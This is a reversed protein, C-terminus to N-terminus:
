KNLEENGCVKAARRTYIKHMNTHNIWACEIQPTGTYTASCKKIQFEVQDSIIHLSQIIQILIIGQPRALM